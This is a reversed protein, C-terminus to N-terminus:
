IGYMYSIVDSRSSLVFSKLDLDMALDDFGEMLECHRRGGGVFGGGLRELEREM